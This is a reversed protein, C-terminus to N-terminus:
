FIKKKIQDFKKEIIEINKAITNNIVIVHNNGKQDDKAKDDVSRIVNFQKNLVTKKNLLISEARKLVSLNRRSNNINSERKMFNPKKFFDDHESNSHRPKPNVQRKETGSLIRSDDSNFSVESENQNRLFQNKSLNKVQIKYSNIEALFGKNEKMLKLIIEDKRTITIMLYNNVKTLKEKEDTLEKLKREYLILREWNKCNECRSVFTLASKSNIQITQNFNQITGSFNLKRRMNRSGITLENLDLLINNNM